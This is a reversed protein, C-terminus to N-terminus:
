VWDVILHNPRGMINTGNDCWHAQTALDTMLAPWLIWLPIPNTFVKRRNYCVCSLGTCLFSSLLSLAGLWYWNLKERNQSESIDHRWCCCRVTLNQLTVLLLPWLQLIQHDIPVWQGIVGIYIAWEHCQAKYKYLGYCLQQEMILYYPMHCLCIPLKLSSVINTIISIIALM